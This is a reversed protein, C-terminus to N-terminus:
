ETLLIPCRTLTNNRHLSLLDLSCCQSSCMSGAGTYVTAVVLHETEGLNCLLYLGVWDRFIDDYLSQDNGSRVQQACHRCSVAICLLIGTFVNAGALGISLVIAGREKGERM